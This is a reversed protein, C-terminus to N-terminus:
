WSCIHRAIICCFTLEVKQRRFISVKEVACYKSGVYTKRRWMKYLLETVRSERVRFEVVESDLIYGVTLVRVGYKL